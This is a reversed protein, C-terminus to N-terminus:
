EGGLRDDGGDPRKRFLREVTECLIKGGKRKDEVWCEYQLMELLECQDLKVPVKRKKGAATTQVREPLQSAPFAEIPPAM